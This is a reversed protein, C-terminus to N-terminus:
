LFNVMKLANTTLTPNGYNKIFDKILYNLQFNWELKQQQTYVIWM